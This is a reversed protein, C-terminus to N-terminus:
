GLWSHSGYQSVVCRAGEGTEEIGTGEAPLTRLLKPLATRSVLLM